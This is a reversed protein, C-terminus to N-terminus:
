RCRPIKGCHTSCFSYGSPTMTIRGTNRLRAVHRRQLCNTVLRDVKRDIQSIGTLAKKELRLYIDVPIMGNLRVEDKQSKTYLCCLFQLIIDEEDLRHRNYESSRFKIRCDPCIVWAM